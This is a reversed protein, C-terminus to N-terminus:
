YCTVAIIESRYQFLEMREEWFGFIEVESIMHAFNSSSPNDQFLLPLNIKLFWSFSQCVADILHKEPDTQNKTEDFCKQLYQSNSNSNSLIKLHIQDHWACLSGILSDSITIKLCINTLLEFFPFYLKVHQICNICIVNEFFHYNGVGELSCELHSLIISIKEPTKQTVFSEFVSENRSVKLM